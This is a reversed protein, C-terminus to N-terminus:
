FLAKLLFPNTITKNGFIKLLNATNNNDINARRIKKLHFPQNLTPIRTAFFPWLEKQRYTKTIDPFDLIPRIFPNERFDDSYVFVWDNDKHTLSGIIKKDYSLVFKVAKASPNDIYDMGDVKWFYKKVSKIM